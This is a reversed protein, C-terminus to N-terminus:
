FDNREFSGVWRRLRGYGLIQDSLFTILYQFPIGGVRKRCLRDCKGCLKLSSADELLAKRLQHYRDGNWIEKLGSEKVNGLAMGAMYDQPCPTVTGDWCIVMAYWPFTCQNFSKIGSLEPANETVWTYEKKVIVEDLGSKLLQRTLTKVRATDLRKEHANFDIREVICYPIRSKKKKRIALFDLINKLTREFDAGLRVEEYLDKQFGDFSISIMQPGAEILKEAKEETLLTANTHFRVGVSKERAYRIMDFLRPNVLPEGRHHLYVDSVFDCAEDIIKKFLDFEMMGKGSGPIEKNPCMICKLNCILSSEIWLRMPFTNLHIKKGKYDLYQRGLRYTKSILNM